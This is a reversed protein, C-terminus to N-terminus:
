QTSIQGTNWVTVTREVGRASRIVIKVYSFDEGRDCVGSIRPYTGEPELPGQNQLCIIADPSPRRFTVNLFGDTYCQETGPVTQSPVCFRTVRDSGAIVYTELCETDTNGLPRIGCSNIVGGEYTKNATYSSATRFNGADAFIVFRRTSGQTPIFDFPILGFHIGYAPYIKENQDTTAARQVNTAYTQAKRVSLAVDQTTNRLSASTSFDSYRFLLISSVVAFISVVVVMEILTLGKKYQPSSLRM